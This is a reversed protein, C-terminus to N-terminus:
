SFCFFLVNFGNRPWVKSPLCPCMLNLQGLFCFLISYVTLYLRCKFVNFHRHINDVCMVVFQSDLPHKISLHVLVFRISLVRPSLTISMIKVPSIHLVAFWLSVTIPRHKQTWIEYIESDSWDNQSWNCWCEQSRTVECESYKSLKPNSHWCHSLDVLSWRCAENISM